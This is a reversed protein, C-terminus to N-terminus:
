RRHMEVNKKQASTKRLFHGVEGDGFMACLADRVSASINIEFHANNADVYKMYLLEAANRFCKMEDDSQEYYNVLISSKPFDNWELFSLGDYVFRLKNVAAESMVDRIRIRESEM